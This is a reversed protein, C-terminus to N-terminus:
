RGGYDKAEVKKGTDGGTSMTKKGRIRRSRRWWRRERGGIQRRYERTEEEKKRKDAEM